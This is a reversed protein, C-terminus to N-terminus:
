ERRSSKEISLGIDHIGKLLDDRMGQQLSITYEGPVPFFVNSRYLTKVSKLGGFGEGTWEGSPLALVIEFTDRLVKGGPQEIEIFLWLNSYKYTTKNRLQIYIDHYELTDTASFHLYVLSDKNWVSDPIEIYKDLMRGSDCSYFVVIAVSLILIRPATIKM